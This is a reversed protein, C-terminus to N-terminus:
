HTFKAVIKIIKIETEIPFEKIKESLFINSQM